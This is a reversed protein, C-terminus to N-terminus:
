QAAFRAPVIAPLRCHAPQLLPIQQGADQSQPTRAKRCAQFLEDNGCSSTSWELRESGTRLTHGSTEQRTILSIVM